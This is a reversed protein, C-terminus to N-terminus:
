IWWLFLLLFFSFFLFNAVKHSTSLWGARWNNLASKENKSLTRM